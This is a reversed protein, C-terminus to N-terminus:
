RVIILPPPPQDRVDADQDCRTCPFKSKGGFCDPDGYPCVWDPEQSVDFMADDCM